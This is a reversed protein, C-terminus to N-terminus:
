SGLAHLSLVLKERELTRPKIQCKFPAPANVLSSRYEGTPEPEGDVKSINYVSLVSAITIWISSTALHKGPCLRRGFGFHAVPERMDPNLKESGSIPNKIMWRDPNFKDPDPYTKPDHFMSWVNGIVISNKSIFYGKYVDDETSLHAIGLPNVPQSRFIEYMLATIYPMNERDGFEPLRESGVVQDLEKQAKHQIDPYLLMALFFSRIATVITDTGAGFMNAAADKIDQQRVTKEQLLGDDDDLDGSQLCHYVFCPDLSGKAMQEKVNEFPRNVMVSTAKRWKEAKNQFSAGPMWSPVYKLFPFYDLWFTGPIAASVFGEVGEEAEKVYPDDSSRVKIGYTVDMIVTATMHRIHRVLNAPDDLLKEIMTYVAKEAQPEYREPLNANFERTVLRRLASWRPGYPMTTFSWEYGAFKLMPFDPRSSYIKGRKELLETAAEMSNLVITSSGGVTFHLIDSHYKESWQMFTLWPFDSPLDLINGVIPLPPPGPPCPYPKRRRFYAYLTGGIICGVLLAQYLPAQFLPRAVM